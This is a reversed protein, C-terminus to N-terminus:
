LNADCPFAAITKFYIREGMKCIIPPEFTFRKMSLIHMYKINALDSKLWILLIPQINSYIDWGRVDTVSGNEKQDETEQGLQGLSWSWWINSRCSTHPAHTRTHTHTHTHTHPGILNTLTGASLSLTTYLTLLLSVCLLCLLPPSSSGIMAVM